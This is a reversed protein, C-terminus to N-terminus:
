LARVGRRRPRRGAFALACGVLLLLLAAFLQLSSDRGTFALEASTGAPVVPAAATDAAVAGPAPEAAPTATTGGADPRPTPPDCLSVSANIVQCVRTVVSNMVSVDGTSISLQSGSALATAPGNSGTSAATLSRAPTGLSTPDESPAAGTSAVNDGSVAVGLLINLVGSIQRIVVQSSSATPDDLGGFLQQVVQFAASAAMLSAGLQLTADWTVADSQPTTLLAFLQGFASTVDAMGAVAGTPTTALGAGNAGSNALAFGFNGVTALQSASASHDGSVSGAATQTILTTSDNGVAVTSGTGLAVSGGAPDASAATTGSATPSSDGMMMSLLAVIIAQALVAQTQDGGAANLGSAAFGAGFNVVVARQTILLSGGDVATGVAVQVVTTRSSDGTATAAGTDVGASSPVDSWSVAVATRGAGTGTVASSVSNAGSNGIAVGVNQVSATQSTTENADLLNVVQTVVTSSSLGLASVDGTGVVGMSTGAPGAAGVATNQGSTAAALGINVVLAIQEIIVQAAAAASATAQQTISDATAGGTASSAGTQVTASPDGTASVPSGGGTGTNSVTNVGSNGVAVAQNDVAANQSITTAAAPDAPPASAPNSPGGGSTPAVSGSAPTGAVGPNTAAGTAPAAASPDSPATGTGDATPSSAPSSTPSADAPASSQASVPPQDGSGALAAVPGTALASAVGVTLCAAASRLAV